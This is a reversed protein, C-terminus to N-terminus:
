CLLHRGLNFIMYLFAIIILEIERVDSLLGGTIVKDNVALVCLSAHREKGTVRMECVTDWAV